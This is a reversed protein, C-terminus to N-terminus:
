RNGAKRSGFYYAITTATMFSLSPRLAQFMETASSAPFVKLFYMLMVCVFVGVYVYSLLLALMGQVGQFEPMRDAEKADVFVFISIAVIMPGFTETIEKLLPAFYDPTYQSYAVLPVLCLVLGSTWLIIIHKLIGVKM